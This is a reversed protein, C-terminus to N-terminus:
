SIRAQPQHHLASSIWQGLNTPERGSWALHADPRVLLTNGNSNTTVLRAVLDAGLHHRAAATLAESGTTAPALLAWRPGLEAHLRTVQGNEDTCPLDPVRDGPQLGRGRWSRPALPGGRY